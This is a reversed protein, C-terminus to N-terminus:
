NSLVNQFHPEVRLHLHKRGNARMFLYDLVFSVWYDKEIVAETIGLKASTNICLIRLEDKTEM